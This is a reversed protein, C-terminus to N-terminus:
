KPAELVEASLTSVLGRLYWHAARRYESQQFSAGLIYLGYVIVLGIPAVALGEVGSTAVGVIFAVTGLLAMIPFRQDFLSEMTCFLITGDSIREYEVALRPYTPMMPDFRQIRMKKEGFRGRLFPRAARGLMYPMMADAIQRPTLPTWLIMTVEGYPKRIQRTTRERRSPAQRIQQSQLMSLQGM